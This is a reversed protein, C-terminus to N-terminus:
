VIHQACFSTERNRSKIITFSLKKKKFFLSYYFSRYHITVKQSHITFNKFAEWFRLGVGFIIFLSIIFLLKNFNPFLHFRSFNRTTVDFCREIMWMQEMLWWHDVFLLHFEEEVWSERGYNCVNHSFRKYLHVTDFPCEHALM